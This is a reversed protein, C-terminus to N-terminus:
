VVAFNSQTAAGGEKPTLVSRRPAMPVLSPVDENDYSVPGREDPPAAVSERRYLSPVASVAGGSNPPFVPVAGSPVEPPNFCEPVFRKERPYYDAVELILWQSRRCDPLVVRTPHAKIDDHEGPHRRMASFRDTEYNYWLFGPSKTWDAEAAYRLLTETERPDFETGRIIDQVGLERVSFAWYAPADTSGCPFRVAIKSSVSTM